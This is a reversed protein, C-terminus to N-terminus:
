APLVTVESTSRGREAVRALVIHRQDPTLASWSAIEEMTRLCGTCLGTQGDLRCISICPSVANDVNLRENVDHHL